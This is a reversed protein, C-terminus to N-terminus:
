CHQTLICGPPIIVGLSLPQQFNAEGPLTVGLSPSDLPEVGINYASMEVHRAVGSADINDLALSFDVLKIPCSSDQPLILDMGGVGAPNVAYSSSAAANGNGPVLSCTTINNPNGFTLTISGATLNGHGDATFVGTASLASNPNDGNFGFAPSIPGAFRFGYSGQLASNLLSQACAPGSVIVSFGSLLLAFRWALTM